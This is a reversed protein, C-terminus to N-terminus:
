RAYKLHSHIAVFDGAFNDYRGNYFTYRGSTSTSPDTASALIHVLPQGFAKDVAKNICMVDGWLVNQNTVDGTGGAGFYGVDGPFRITCNNVADIPSTAAHPGTAM